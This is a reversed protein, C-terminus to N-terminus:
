QVPICNETYAINNPLVLITSVLGETSHGWINNRQGQPVAPVIAPRFLLFAVLGFQGVTWELKPSFGHSWPSFRARLHTM